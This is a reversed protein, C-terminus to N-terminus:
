SCSPCCCRCSFSNPSVLRWCCYKLPLSASSSSPPSFATWCSWPNKQEWELIHKGLEWMSTIFAMLLKSWYQGTWHNTPLITSLPFILILGSFSLWTHMLSAIVQKAINGMSWHLCPVMWQFLCCESSKLDVQLHGSDLFAAGCVEM